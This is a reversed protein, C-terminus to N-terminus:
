DVWVLDEEDGCGPSFQIFRFNTYKRFARLVSQQIAELSGTTIDVDPCDRGHRSCPRGNDTDTLCDYVMGPYWLPRDDPGIVTTLYCPEDDWYPNQDHGIWVTVVNWVYQGADVHKHALDYAEVADKGLRAGMDHVWRWKSLSEREYQPMEEPLDGGQLYKVMALHSQRPLLFWWTMSFINRLADAYRNWLMNHRALRDAEWPLMAKTKM